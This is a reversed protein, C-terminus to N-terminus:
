FSGLEKLNIRRAVEAVRKGLAKAQELDNSTPEGTTMAGYYSGSTRMRDSWPLGVVIMGHAVMSHVLNLLTIEMGAARSWGSTFAGGVKGVLKGDEWIQGTADILEKMKATMGHWNPSGLIIADATVLQEITAKDLPTLDVEAGQVSKAGEAVADALQGISRSISDYIISIQM